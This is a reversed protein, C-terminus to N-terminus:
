FLVSLLLFEPWLKLYTKAWKQVLYFKFSCLSFSFDRSYVKTVLTDIETSDPDFLFFLIARAKCFTQCKNVYIYYFFAAIGIQDSQDFTFDFVNWCFDAVHIIHALFHILKVNGEDDPYM